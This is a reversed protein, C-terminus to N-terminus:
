MSSVSRKRIHRQPSSHPRTPKASPAKKKEKATKREKAMTTISDVRARHSHQNIQTATQTFLTIPLSMHRDNGRKLKKGEKKVLPTKKAKSKINHQHPHQNTILHTQTACMGHAILTFLATIQTTPHKKKKALV